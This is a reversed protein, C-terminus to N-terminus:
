MQKLTEASPPGFQRTADQNGHKKTCEIVQLRNCNQQQIWQLQTNTLRFNYCIDLFLSGTVINIVYSIFLTAFLMLYVLIM